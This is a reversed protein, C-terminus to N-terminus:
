AHEGLPAVCLGPRGAREYAILVSEGPRHHRLEVVLEAMSTVPVNGVATIVDGPVLGATDAPSGEAVTAVRAGGAVQLDDAARAGVDSGEIGLWPHHASGTEIIQAAIRRATDIPVAFSLGGAVGTDSPHTTIGVVAGRRDILAGGTAAPDLSADTQIMDHRTPTAADGADITRGLASVIGATVAPGDGASSRAGVILLPAGVALDAVSGLVATPLDAVDIKLVAVDTLPDTGVIDGDLAAGDGVVVGISLSHAVLDASTLLYGDSRFLVASGVDTTTEAGSRGPDEAANADTARTVELRAVTPGVRAALTAIAPSTHTGTGMAVPLTAAPSTAVREVVERQVVDRDFGGLAIVAVLTVVAGTLGALAGVTWPSRSRRSTARPSARDADGANGTALAAAGIESPHRWLRDEPPLPPGLEGGDEDPGEPPLM